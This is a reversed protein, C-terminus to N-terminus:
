FTLAQFFTGRAGETGAGWSLSNSKGFLETEEEKSERNEATIMKRERELKKGM